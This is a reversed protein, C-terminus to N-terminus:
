RMKTKLEIQGIQINLRAPPRSPRRVSRTQQHGVYLGVLLVALVVVM